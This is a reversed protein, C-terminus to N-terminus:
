KLEMKMPFFRIGAEAREAGDPLFGLHRYAEVAGPAAFVTLQKVEPRVKKQLSVMRALLRRAIGCCQFEPLVFLMSVHEFDRLEVVGVIDGDLEAVAMQCGNQQREAISAPFIYALFAAVGEASYHQRISQEFGAVAVQAAAAEDGPRYLRIRPEM